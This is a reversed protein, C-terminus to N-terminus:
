NEQMFIKNSERPKYYYDITTSMNSHGLSNSISRIKSPHKKILNTAFSHRFTMSTINDFGAKKGVVGIQKTIYESQYKKGGYTEFLYKKGKFTKMIFNFTESSLYLPRSKNKSSVLVKYKGNENFCNKIEIQTLEGIRCGTEWLFMIFSKQKVTLNSKLLINYQKQNLVEGKFGNRDLYPLPIDECIERINLELLGKKIRDQDEFLSRIRSIMATRMFRKTNVSYDSLNLHLLYDRMIKENIGTEQKELFYIFNKIHTVYCDQKEYLLEIQKEKSINLQLEM